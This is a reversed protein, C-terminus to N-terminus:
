SNPRKGILPIKYKNLVNNFFFALSLIAIPILHISFRPPYGMVTLFAYPALLGIIAIGLSLPFNSLVKPRWVLALLAILTGLAIVVGSIPPFAPWPVGTLVEYFKGRGHVMALNPHSKDFPFFSGGLWWNRYCLIVLSLIGGGWYFALRDWHLKLREWYGKWGGTPGKIPEFALFALGAIVGLHDLRFWYGLIGFLTALIIKGRGGERAKFLFWAALMMFLMAHNEVLTRGIHYRFAGVFNILLYVISAIFIILVSLRFKVGLSVLLTVAGLVCWVDAVYAALPSQGFLLHYIGIFYRYLPAMNFLGEGAELWEGEVVIKRAFVQYWTWDDGAGWNIWRSFGPIQWYSNIFSVLIAPGFLLFVSSVIHGSQFNRFDKKWYSWILFSIGVIAISIGLKARGTIDILGFIELVNSVVPAIFFPMCIALTSFVVLPFNIIQRAILARTTWVIWALLFVIIGGNLIFSLNKYFWIQSASLDGNNQWLVEKGLKPTVAGSADVLVPILSWKTGEYILKSSIQWKGGKSIQYQQQAAEKHNKATFVVINEGNENTASFTGGEVGEAILAFKIGEPLLLVGNIEITPSLTDICKLTDIGCLIFNNVLVWDLPFDMRETWAGKIVGSAKENWTTAYTRVWSEEESLKFPHLWKSQEETINPHVKILLGGSPSGLFLTFKFILLAGLILLSFRLALFRWGLLLLFPVVASLIVAETAGTWPLGDFWSTIGSPLGLVLGLLLAGLLSVFINPKDTTDLSSNLDQSDNLM